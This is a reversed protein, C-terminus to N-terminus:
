ATAASFERDYWEKFGPENEIKDRLQKSNMADIDARTYKPKPKAAPTPTARLDNRSYSTAALRPRVRQAPSGDPPTQASPQPAPTGDSSFLMGLRLLEAYAADLTEATINEFGVMITAKDMLLRSNRAHEDDPFDPNNAEWDQAIQAIRRITETRKGADLDYGESKLLTVLAKGAKAPNKSELDVTAQMVEDATVAPAVPVARRAPAAPTAAPPKMARQRAIVQQGTEVTHGVKDMVEEVTRGYTRIVPNVGDEPDIVYCLQGQKPGSTLPKGENEWFRM